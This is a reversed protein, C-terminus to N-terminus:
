RSIEAQDAHAATAANPDGQRTTADPTYAAILRARVTIPQILGNEKISAALEALAEKDFRKRPQDPNPIVSNTPIRM